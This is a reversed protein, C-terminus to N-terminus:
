MLCFRLNRLPKFTKTFSMPVGGFAVQRREPHSHLSVETHQTRLRKLRTQSQAVRHVMARWAARDIPNELLFVPTPQRARRWPIKGVWPDFGSRKQRRCQYTPKKGSAGGPFGECLDLSMIIWVLAPLLLQGKLWSCPLGPNCARTLSDQQLSGPM